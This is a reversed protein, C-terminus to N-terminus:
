QEFLGWLVRSPFGGALDECKEIEVMEGFM